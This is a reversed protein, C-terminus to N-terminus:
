SCLGVGKNNLYFGIGFPLFVISVISLCLVMWKPSLVFTVSPLANQKWNDRNKGTSEIPQEGTSMMLCSSFNAKAIPLWNSNM